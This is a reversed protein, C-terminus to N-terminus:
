TSQQPMKLEAASDRLVSIASKIFLVSLGIGVVLDPTASKFVSVLGAAILVSINAAIDNRSCIWVSKMNIDDDRHRSLLFLCFGNAVLAVLGFGTMIEAEPLEPNLFRYIARALIAAGLALMLGGKLSASRAKSRSGARLVFLSSGYAIADGLMDLSDGLLATSGSVIGAAAEVFFMALNISLVIWLVKAHRQAMIELDCAKKQCCDSM